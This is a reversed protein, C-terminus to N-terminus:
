LSNYFVFVLEDVPPSPLCMHSITLCNGMFAPQHSQEGQARSNALAILMVNIVPPLGNQKCPPETPTM